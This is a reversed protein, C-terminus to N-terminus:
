AGIVGTWADVLDIICYGKVPIYRKTIMKITEQAVMGGLSAETNPLEAAPARALEGIAHDLAELLEVSDDVISQVEQRLHEVTSPSGVSDGKPVFLASLALHTPTARPSSVLVDALAAKDQDFAGWEKGRLVQLAHANEVFLDVVANDVPARLRSRRSRRDQVYLRQLPIYNSTDSRMDPLTSTLPLAHTESQDTLEKLAALLHFFPSPNQRLAEPSIAPNEFLTTIESPIKTETWCRYAQAEAEDFKEEDSKIKKARILKKGSTTRKSHSDTTSIDARTSSPVCSFFRPFPLLSKMWEELVRILIVVYPYEIPDLADFDLALAHDRLAPFPKDIRLSPANESHPHEGTHEHFQIFFEALFGASRVVVLPPRAPDDWLFSSLRELLASDLLLRAVRHRHRATDTPGQVSDRQCQARLM